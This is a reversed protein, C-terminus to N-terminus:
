FDVHWYYYKWFLEINQQKLKSTHCPLSALKYPNKGVAQFTNSSFHQKSVLICITKLIAPIYKQSDHMREVMENFQAYSPQLGRYKFPSLVVKLFFNSLVWTREEGYHTGFHESGQLTFPIKSWYSNKKLAVSLLLVLSFYPATM